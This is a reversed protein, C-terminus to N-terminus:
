HASRLKENKIIANVVREMKMFRSGKVLVCADASMSAKVADVLSAFSNFHQGDAGFATSALQSLIGFSFLRTIGKQKAYEGIEVHMSEADAGLEGMDGMVFILTNKQNSSQSALVDIAVHMSDPNANYTDDIVVADHYGALLNLRGQVGHFQHLGQVIKSNSIGLAVAVASAALANSANHKGLLGLNLQVTGEPTKLQMSIHNNQTEYKACVDAEVDLGFTMVKRTQNLSKWYDAFRDNANIIAIGDDALGEYIEGKAQAIAERSGLEGIHAVGANNVLAVQPCALNTLYRIEGLHNMGMEIVAYAHSARLNLLSLPMGIDNNLNGKTALVGEESTALIAAVMEKVTTKGNSGTIAVVPLSFKKRWYSALNGLAIRSDEVLVAPSVKVEADSIIVAAAGQAIADAAFNNGDFHDGKIAVFLQGKAIHRSDTGVSLVHVDEGVMQAGLANAIESLMMM